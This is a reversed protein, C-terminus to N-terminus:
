ASAEYLLRMSRVASRTEQLYNGPSYRVVPLAQRITAPDVGVTEVECGQPLALIRIADCHQYPVYIPSTIILVRDVPGLAVERVWHRLTDQTSARRTDPASSPSALLCVEPGPGSWRRSSWSRNLEPGTHLSEVVKDPQDLGFAMQAAAALVDIEYACGDLGLEILPALEVDRLRRFSGLGTVTGPAVTGASVLHGAYFVRQLCAPAVAGLLLLHTYTTRRPPRVDRLGLARTAVEVLRVMDASLTPEDADLRERGRRYDWNEATFDDLFSLIVGTDGRPFRAGFAEVLDRLPPSTSWRSVADVIAAPSVGPGFSPLSVQEYRM